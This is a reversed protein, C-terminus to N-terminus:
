IWSMSSGLKVTHISVQLDNALSTYPTTSGVRNRLLEILIEISKIDRVKELDLLDARIITDTHIRRFRKAFTESNKLYPEPFGGVKIIKDLATEPKEDLYKCIQKQSLRTCPLPEKNLIYM